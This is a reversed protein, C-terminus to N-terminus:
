FVQYGGITYYPPSNEGFSDYILGIGKAFWKSEIFNPIGNEFMEYRVKIVDTSTVIGSTATVNKELLTMRIYYTYSIGGITGTMNPSNWSSGQPVNDKLFIYEVGHSSSPSDFGFFGEADFYVFYDGDTKRYYLSQQNVLPYYPNVVFTSYINGGATLTNPIVKILTGGSTGGYLYTWNSNITTPFYDTGTTATGFTISFNCTSSGFTIGFNQSGSNIPTGTGTLIVNQFGTTSFTGSYSFSIGNVTNTSITFTGPTTVTVQVTVTNASTLSVGPTYTGGTTISTCVGSYIGALYVGLTRATRGTGGSNDEKQCSFLIVATGLVLLKRWTSLNSM